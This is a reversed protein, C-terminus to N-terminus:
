ATVRILVPNETVEFEFGSGLLTKRWPGLCVALQFSIHYLFVTLCTLCHFDVRKETLLPFCLIEDFFMPSMKVCLLCTLTYLIRELSICVFCIVTIWHSLCQHFLIMGLKKQKQTCKVSKRQPHVSVISTDPISGSIINM